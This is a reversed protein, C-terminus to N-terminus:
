NGCMIRVNPLNRTPLFATSVRRLHYLEGNAAHAPYFFVM